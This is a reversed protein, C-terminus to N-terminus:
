QFAGLAIYPALFGDYKQRMTRKQAAVEGRIIIYNFNNYQAPHQDLKM